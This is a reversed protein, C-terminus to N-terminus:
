GFFRPRPEQPESDDNAPTVGGKGALVDAAISNADQIQEHVETSLKELKGLLDRNEALNTRRINATAQAVDGFSELDQLAKELDNNVGQMGMATRFAEKSSITSTTDAMRRISIKAAESAEGLSASSVAQLVTSLQDAVGAVGTTHM